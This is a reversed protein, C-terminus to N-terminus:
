ALSRNSQCSCLFVCGARKPTLSWAAFFVVSSKLCCSHVHNVPRMQWQEIVQFVCRELQRVRVGGEQVVNATVDCQVNAMRAAFRCTSLTEDLQGAEGWVNAILVTRCNGGLSDKLVHTLKSSRYPVHDRGKDSM